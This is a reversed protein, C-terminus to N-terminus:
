KEKIKYLRLPSVKINALGWEGIVAKVRDYSNFTQAHAPNPSWLTQGFKIKMQFYKYGIPTDRFIVYVDAQEKVEKM